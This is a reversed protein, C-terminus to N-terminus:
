TEVKGNTIKYILNCSSNLCHFAPTITIETNLTSVTYKSGVYGEAGCFPCSLLWNTDQKIIFGPKKFKFEEISVWRIKMKQNVVVM